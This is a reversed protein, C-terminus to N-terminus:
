TPLGEQDKEEPEIEKNETAESLKVRPNKFNQWVEFSISVALMTILIVEPVSIVNTVQRITWLFAVSAIASGVFISLRDKIEDVKFHSLILVEGVAYLL